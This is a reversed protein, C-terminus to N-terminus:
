KKKISKVSRRILVISDEAGPVAGKLLIINRGADAQAIEVNLVTVRSDGMHGAMRHGKYVRAPSTTGGMSGPARHRDSQGHTKPGGRFHYRKVGGAFGKGKSIGIVDVRDGKQFLSADLTQGVKLSSPAKVRIELLHKVQKGATKLHGKEPSNLRKAEGFGLQVASYGDKEQTKIQTVFCPGAAVATVAELRGDECFVQTMGLKRGIIGETEVM